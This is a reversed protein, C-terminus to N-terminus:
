VTILLHASISNFRVMRYLTNNKPFLHANYIFVHNKDKFVKKSLQM